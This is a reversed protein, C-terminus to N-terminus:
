PQGGLISIGNGRQVVVSNNQYLFSSAKEEGTERRGPREGVWSRLFNWTKPGFVTSSGLLPCFPFVLKTWQQSATGERFGDSKSQKDLIQIYM